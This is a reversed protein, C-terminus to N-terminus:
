APRRARRAPPQASSSQPKARKPLRTPWSVIHDAVHDEPVADEDSFVRGRVSAGVILFRRESASHEEDPFTVSLPDAFVTAAERFDVRHRRLNAQAKKPDWTFTM